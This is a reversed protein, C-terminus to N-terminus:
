RHGPQIVECMPAHLVGNSAIVDGSHLMTDGGAFDTVVGGAERVIVIGAAIDYAHLQPQWYGELWGCAVACLDLAAAGLRRVDQCHQMADLFHQFNNDRKNSRDTPFGTGLLSRELTDIVSVHIPEGNLTAGLGRAAAFLRMNIPDFVVGAVPVGNEVLGLSTCFWPVGHSFNHTGDIPDIHWVAQAQGDQSAGEEGIIGHTPFRERLANAIYVEARQDYETLPDFRAKLQVPLKHQQALAFGTRLLDGVGYAIETACALTHKLDLPM